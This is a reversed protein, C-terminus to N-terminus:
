KFHNIIEEDTPMRGLQNWLLKIGSSLSEWKKLFLVVKTKEPEINEDKLWDPLEMNAIEISMRLKDASKIIGDSIRKSNLANTQMESLLKYQEKTM